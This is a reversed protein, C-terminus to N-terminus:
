YAMAYEISFSLRDEKVREATEVLDMARAQDEAWIERAKTRLSDEAKQWAEYHTMVGQCNRPRGMYKYRGKIQGTQRAAPRKKIQERM